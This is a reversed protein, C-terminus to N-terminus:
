PVVAALDHKAPAPLGVLIAAAAGLVPVGPPAFPTLALCIAAGLASALRGRTTALHPVLMAVFAAPFAVDLGYKEIDVASGALAGAVTAANWCVYLTGATVWFAFRRAAANAQAAAMATTEDVILQAAVLRRGLSGHIVRSMAVGYVTNRGALLVAGGLAAAGSSGAAVESVLSFQSAGTFVLLSMVSAQAVSAGTAVAGVGFVFGTLGVAAALTAVASAIRRRQDDTLPETDVRRPPPTTPPV